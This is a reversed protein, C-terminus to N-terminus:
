GEESNEDAGDDIMDEADKQDLSDALGQASSKDSQDPTISQVEIECSCSTKGDRTSESKSVVKGVASFKFEGDPLNDISDIGSVYLTPYSVKPTKKVPSSGTSEMSDYSKGLDITMSKDM